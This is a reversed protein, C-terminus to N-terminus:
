KFLYSIKLVKKKIKAKTVELGALQETNAVHTGGCPCPNGAVTVVRVQAPYSSLDSQCLEGAETNSLFEVQTDIKESIMESMVANLTAPLATMEEPSMTFGPSCNYEVYPGDTFHYGKAAQLESLHGLRLM